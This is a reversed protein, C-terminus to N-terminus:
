KQCSSLEHAALWSLYVSMRWRSLRGIKIPAPFKGHAILVYLWSKSLRAHQSIFKMDVLIADAEQLSTNTTM